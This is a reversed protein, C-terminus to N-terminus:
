EEGELLEPNDYINGKTRICMNEIDMEGLYEEGLKKHKLIFFASDYVVLANTSKFKFEEDNYFSVIDNEYIKKGEEDNLETYRGVTNIDVEKIVPLIKIQNDSFINETGIVIYGKKSENLPELEFYFGYVWEGTKIDKGRFEIDRSM